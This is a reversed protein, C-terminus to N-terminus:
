PIDMTVLQIRSNPVLSPKKNVKVVVANKRDPIVEDADVVDPYKEYDRPFYLLIDRVTYVGTKFFLEETKAGIGKVQRIPSDLTM